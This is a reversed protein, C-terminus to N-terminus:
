RETIGILRSSDTSAQGHSPVYGAVNNAIVRFEKDTLLLRRFAAWAESPTNGPVPADSGYVVREIGLQRIRQAVLENNEAAPGSGAASTVDFWLNNTRPDSWAIADIFVTLAPDALPDAAYPGTGALHAIQIPVDPAASVFQDLFVLAEDRGFPLAPSVSSRMHVILAMGHRNAAEFVRHLRRVHEPNHYDVEANAFHLKLGADLNEDSACRSIEAIAYDKLPNVSCIGILREPFSAVQQSTWDNAARVTAAEDAVSRGPQGFIYATSLVVAREIGAETLLGVLDSATIPQFPDGPESLLEALAPSFLHQHHDVVPAMERAGAEAGTELTKFASCAPLAVLVCAFLRFARMIAKNTYATQCLRLVLIGGAVVGDMSEYTSIKGM